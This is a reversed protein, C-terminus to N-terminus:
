LNETVDAPLKTVTRESKANRNYMTLNLDPDLDLDSDPDLEPGSDHKSVLNPCLYPELETDSDPYPNPDLTWVRCLFQSSLSYEM